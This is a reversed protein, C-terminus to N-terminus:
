EEAATHTQLVLKRSVYGCRGCACHPLRANGCKPCAVIHAPTLAHHARRKRKDNKSKKKAPLM